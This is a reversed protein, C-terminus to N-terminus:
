LDSALPRLRAFGPPGFVGHRAHGRVQRFGPGTEDMESPHRYPYVKYQYFVSARGESAPIHM